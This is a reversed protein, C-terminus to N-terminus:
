SGAGILLFLPGGLQVTFSAQFTSVVQGSIEVTGAKKLSTVTFTATTNGQTVTVSAPVTAISTDSSLLTVVVGGVGAATELTVTGVATAPYIVSPPAISISVLDNAIPPQFAIGLFAYTDPNAQILTPSFTGASVEVATAFNSEVQTWGSGPGTVGETSAFYGIVLEGGLAAIVPGSMTANTTGQKQSFSGADVKVVGGWEMVNVGPFSGGQGTVNVSAGGATDAFGYLLSAYFGDGRNQPTGPQVWTTVGGQGSAISVPSSSSSFVGVVLLDGVEIFNPFSVGTTGSGSQILTPQAEVFFTFAQGSFPAGQNISCQEASGPSAFFNDLIGDFAQGAFLATARMTYGATTITGVPNGQTDVFCLFLTNPQDPTITPTLFAGSGSNAVFASQRDLKNVGGSYELLLVSNLGTAGTLALSVTNAGANCNPVMFLCYTDTSDKQLAILQALLANGATDTYVPTGSFVGTFRGFAFLTNGATNNSAFANSVPTGTAYTMGAAQVFAIAM